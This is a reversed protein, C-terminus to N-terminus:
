SDATAWVFTSDAITGLGVGGEMRRGCLAAGALMTPQSEGALELCFWCRSWSAGEHCWAFVTKALPGYVHTYIYIYIDIYM